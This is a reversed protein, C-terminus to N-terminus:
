EKGVTASGTILITLAALAAAQIVCARRYLRLSQRIDRATAKHKGQGMFADDVLTAGYVRPGGLELGLAGAM